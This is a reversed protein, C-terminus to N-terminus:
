KKSAPRTLEEAKYYGKKGSEKIEARVGAVFAESVVSSRNGFANRVYTMVDAIQQDNLINEYPTMPV